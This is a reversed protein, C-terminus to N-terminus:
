ISAIRALSIQRLRRLYSFSRGTSNKLKLCLFMLVSASALIWTSPEPVPTFSQAPTSSFTAGNYNYMSIDSNSFTFSLDSNGVMKTGYGTTQSNAQNWIRFFYYSGTPSVTITTPSFNAPGMLTDGFASFSGPAGTAVGLQSSVSPNNQSTSNVWNFWSVNLTQTANVGPNASIQVAFQDINLTSGTNSKLMFVYDRFRTGWNTVNGGTDVTTGYVNINQLTGNSSVSM